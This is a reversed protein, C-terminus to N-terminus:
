DSSNDSSCRRVREEYQRRREGAQKTHAPAHYRGVATWWDDCRCDEFQKRLLRAANILNFYPDLALWPTVLRVRHWHWNIQGLGIDVSADNGLARKLTEYAAIRTPFWHGEGAINLTWPWPRTEGDPMERGSEACAVAYLIDAPVHEAEAVAAYGAPPAAQGAPVALLLAVAALITLGARLEFGWPSAM